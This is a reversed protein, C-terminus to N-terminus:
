NDSIKFVFIIRPANLINLTGSVQVGVEVYLKPLYNKRITSQDPVLKGTYKEFFVKVYPINLKSWPFGATVFLRCLDQSFKQNQQNEM